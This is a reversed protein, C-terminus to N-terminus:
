TSGARSLKDRILGSISGFSKSRGDRTWNGHKVRANPDDGRTNSGGGSAGITQSGSGTSFEIHSTRGGGTYFVPDGREPQNARPLRGRIGAATDDGWNILGTEQRLVYLVFGSCDFTNPGDAGWYYPAGLHSEAASIVADRIAEADAGGDFSESTALPNASGSTLATATGPGVTGDVDLDNAQQFRRVASATLGGYEGDVFLGAGYTNLLQQLRTVRRGADGYALPPRGTLEGENAGVAPTTSGGGSATTGGSQSTHRDAQNLLTATSPGVVGDARLGHERQFIRLARHTGLGFDGDVTCGTGHANLLEQLRRVRPGSAGRQLYPTGSLLTGGDAGATNPDVGGSAGGSDTSSDTGGSQGGSTDLAGLTAAGVIGDVSLGRARQFVMVAARTARGFFGDPNVGAGARNLAVQLARVADGQAGFRLLAGSALLAAMGSNGRGSQGGSRASADTTTATASDSSQRRSVAPM